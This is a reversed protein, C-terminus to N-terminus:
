ALNNKKLEEYIGEALVQNRSAKPTPLALYQSINQLEDRSYAGKQKGELSIKIKNPDIRKILEAPTNQGQVWLQALAPTAIKPEVVVNEKPSLKQKKATTKEEPSQKPKNKTPSLFPVLDPAQFTFPPSKKEIDQLEGPKTIEAPPQFKFASSEEKIISKKTKKPTKVTKPTGEKESKEKKEKKSTKESSEEKKKKKTEKEKPPLPQIFKQEKPPSNKPIEITPQPPKKLKEKDKKQIWDNYKELVFEAAAAAQTQTFVEGFLKAKNVLWSKPYNSKSDIDKNLDEVTRKLKDGDVASFIKNLEKDGPTGMIKVLDPISFEKITRKGMQKPLEVFEETLSQEDFLKNVMEDIDQQIIGSPVQKVIGLEMVAGIFSHSPNNKNYFNNFFKAILIGVDGGQNQFYCSTDKFEKKYLGTDKDKVYQGTEKDLENTLRPCVKQNLYDFTKYVSDLFLKSVQFANEPSNSKSALSYYEYIQQYCGKIFIMFLDYFKYDKLKYQNPFRRRLGENRIFFCLNM